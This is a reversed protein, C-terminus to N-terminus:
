LYYNENDEGETRRTGGRNLMAGSDTYSTIGPAESLMVQTATPEGIGYTCHFFTLQEVCM